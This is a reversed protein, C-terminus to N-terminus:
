LYFRVLYAYASILYISAQISELKDVCKNMHEIAMEINKKKDLLFLCKAYLYHLKAQDLLSSNSLIFVTCKEIYKIAQEPLEMFILIKAIVLCSIM